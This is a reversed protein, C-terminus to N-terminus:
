SSPEVHWEDAGELYCLEFVRDDTTKVLFCNSNPSRWRKLVAAVPLRVGQWYVARPREGHRYGSYCEVQTESV